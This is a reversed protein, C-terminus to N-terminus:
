LRWHIVSILVLLLVIHLSCGSFVSHTGSDAHEQVNYWVPRGSLPQIPRANHTMFGESSRLKRFASLQQHSLYIPHKFDIWTVVELCPPTTLSGKYTFYRETNFPLLVNLSLRLDLHTRTNPFEIEPFKRIIESYVVNDNNADDLEYFLALVLLGDKYEMAKEMTSYDTKYFVMHLEMPYSHNNITDESGYSDNYGWHFHLQAFQYEGPLPGGSVTVPTSHNFQLMVTHGNNIIITDQPLEKFGEFMLPPLSVREVLDEEIDIPSQYKGSCTQFQNVWKDPGLLGDVEYGFDLHKSHTQGLTGTFLLAAFVLTFARVDSSSEM